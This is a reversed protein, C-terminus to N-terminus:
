ACEHSRRAGYLRTRVAGPSIGLHDAAEAPSYGAAILFGVRRQGKTLRMFQEDDAALPWKDQRVLPAQKEYNKRRKESRMFQRLGNKCARMLYKAPDRVGRVELKWIRIYVLQLIEEADGGIKRQLWALIGKEHKKFEEFM